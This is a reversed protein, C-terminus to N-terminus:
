NMKTSNKIKCVGVPQYQPNWIGHPMGKSDSNFYFGALNDRLEVCDRLNDFLEDYQDYNSKVQPGLDFIERLTTDTYCWASSEEHWWDDDRASTLTAL